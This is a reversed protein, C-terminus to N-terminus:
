IFHNLKHKVNKWDIEIKKKREEVSSLAFRITIQFNFVLFNIQKSFIISIKLISPFLCLQKNQSEKLKLFPDKYIWFYKGFFQYFKIQLCKPYMWLTLKTEIPLELLLTIIELNGSRINFSKKEHILLLIFKVCVPCSLQKMWLHYFQFGFFSNIMSSECVM